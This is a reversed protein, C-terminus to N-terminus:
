VIDVNQGGIARMYNALMRNYSNFWQVEQECLNYRLDAPLVSGFEWRMRKIHELRNNLYALVCRKNRELATHRLQISSFLGVEGSVTATTDRQNQEFLARM